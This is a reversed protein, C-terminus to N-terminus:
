PATWYDSREEANPDRREMWREPRKLPVFGFQAYLGQADMTALAWRRFKQLRPHGLMVQMLWKSLGKGRHEKIVFVDGIWAFTAFDTVVRAFGVQRKGAYIGFSVSHRISRAITRLSRGTAWYSEQNLFDHILNLDLRRRDTSIVYKGKKWEM